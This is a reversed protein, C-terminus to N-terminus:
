LTGSSDSLTRDINSLPLSLTEATQIHRGTSWKELCASDRDTALATGRKESHNWAVKKFHATQTLNWEALPGAYNHPRVSTDSEDELMHVADVARSYLPLPPSIPHARHPPNRTISSHPSITSFTRSLCSRLIFQTLHTFQPDM